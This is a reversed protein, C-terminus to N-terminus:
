ISNAIEIIKYIDDTNFKNKHNKRHNMYNNMIQKYNDKLEEIKDNNEDVVKIEKIQKNIEKFKVKYNICINCEEMEYLYKLENNMLNHYKKPILYAAKKPMVILPYVKSPIPPFNSKKLCIQEKESFIHFLLEYPHPSICSYAYDYQPCFGQQYMKLCWLLGELYTQSRYEDYTNLTVKKCSNPLNSYVNHLFKKFIDYNFMCNDHMLTENEHLSLMLDYYIKWLKEYKIYGLKPLYDNGMMISIVVFDDRLNSKALNTITDTRNIRACHLQLLKTLSILENESKGKVLININYIPKMGMSLVILDSDNGIILHRHNLNNVGNKIVQNCIKVEGEDPENSSAMYVEPKVFRYNTKLKNLYTKLYEEIRKMPEIGPTLYLSNITNEDIKNSNETRRKRQLLIKAFSAPGDLSFYIKKTAIFNTFIVDLHMYLKNIFDKETKCGYISNHLLYNIDIYIYEYINNEKIQIYSGPFRQRLWAHFNYIGM